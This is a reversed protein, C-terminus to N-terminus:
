RAAPQASTAKAVHVTALPGLEGVQRDDLREVGNRAASAPGAAPPSRRGAPRRCSWGRAARGARRATARRGGSRSARAAGGPSAHRPAASPRGARHARDAVGDAVLGAVLAVDPRRRPDLHDGLAHQGAAQLVVRLQGADAEHDEVLDVLAVQGGVEAQRQREVHCARDTGVQPQQRHRGGRVRRPQDGREGAGAAVAGTISSRRGCTGPRRGSAGSRGVPVFRVPPAGVDHAGRDRSSLPSTSTNRGPMPSIVAHRAASTPENGPSTSTTGSAPASDSSSCSRASAGDGGPRRRTTSTSRCRRSTASRRRRAPRRRSRAQGARRPEVRPVPM